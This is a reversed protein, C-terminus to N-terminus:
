DKTSDNFTAVRNFEVQEFLKDTAGMGKTTLRNANIKYKKVLIKKVAEARAESLKQNLEANGEPSAYGKIEVKADKHNKMYQAILEISAVQAPDVTSKGQRFIVTPQLNTATAPKAVPKPANQCDTLAKQLDAIQKDKAALQADKDNVAGRLNNIQSNLGDIEAQDRLQAITFNHTGNSNKFKYVIGANLQVASRNINYKINSAENKGNLAWNMSPEIYFQWQKKGGFNFAFDLGAKSTLDNRNGDIGTVTNNGFIHGWGLGYVASVEFCRPEGKYGGFWNSFNVTGLLSTNLYRVVTKTSKYPKNSFYANSEVALGFVPTFYRGIRIGANPDLDGLWSHGTTKTAVGGNIGVYFNDFTKSETVTQASVTAAMAAAAMALVLKKM